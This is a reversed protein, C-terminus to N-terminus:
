TWFRYFANVFRDIEECLEEYRREDGGYERLMASFTCYEVFLADSRKKFEYPVVGMCAERIEYSLECFHAGTRDGIYRKMAEVISARTPEESKRPSTSSSNISITDESKM